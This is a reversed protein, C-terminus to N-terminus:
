NQGNRVSLMSNLRNKAVLLTSAGTHNERRSNQRCLIMFSIVDVNCAARGDQRKRVPRGMTRRVTEPKIRAPQPPPEIFDMFAVAAFTVEGFVSGVADVVLEEDVCLFEEEAESGM